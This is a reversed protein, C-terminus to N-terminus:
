EFELAAMAGHPLMRVLYSDWLHHNHEPLLVSLLHTVPSDKAESEILYTDCTYNDHYGSTSISIQLMKPNTLTVSSSTLEPLIALCFFM